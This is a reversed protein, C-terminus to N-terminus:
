SALVQSLCRKPLGFLKRSKIIYKLVQCQEGTDKKVGTSEVQSGTMSQGVDQEESTM